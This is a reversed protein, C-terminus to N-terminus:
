SGAVTLLQVGHEVNSPSLTLHRLSTFLLTFHIKLHADLNLQRKSNSNTNRNKPNWDKVSSNLDVDKHKFLWNDSNNESPWVLSLLISMSSLLPRTGWRTWSSSIGQLSDFWLGSVRTSNILKSYMYSLSVNPIYLNNITIPHPM